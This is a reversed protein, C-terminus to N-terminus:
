FSTEVPPRARTVAILEDYVNWWKPDRRAFEWSMISRTNNSGCHPCTARMIADLDEVSPTYKFNRYSMEGWWSLAHMDTAVGAHGLEYRTLSRVAKETRMGKYDGYKADKIVKIVYSCGANGPAFGGPVFM